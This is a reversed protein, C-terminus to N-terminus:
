RRSNPRADSSVHKPGLNTTVTLKMLSATMLVYWAMQTLIHPPKIVFTVLYRANRRQRGMKRSIRTSTPRADSSVHKPGLITIVTLKMPSATMLVYWAMQTLIHPPKIVFTVLYRANRRQRGGM